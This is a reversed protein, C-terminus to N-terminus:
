QSNPRSSTTLFTPPSKISCVNFIHLIRNLDLRWAAIREKDDKFHFLRAVATRKGLKVARKEIDAVTRRYLACYSLRACREDGGIRSM